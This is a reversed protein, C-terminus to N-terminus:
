GLVLFWFPTTLRSITAQAGIGGLPARHSCKCFVRAKILALILEVTNYMRCEQLESVIFCGM